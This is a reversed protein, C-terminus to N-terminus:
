PRGTLELYRARDAEFRKRIAEQAEQRLRVQQDLYAIDAKTVSHRRMAQLSDALAQEQALARAQAQDIEAVSAYTALLARDRRQREQRSRDAEAQRAAERDRRDRAEPSAPEEQFRRIVRGQANLETHSKGAYQPPMSDGYHVQGREDVWRYTGALCPTVAALLGLQGGAALRLLRRIAPPLPHHGPPHGGM